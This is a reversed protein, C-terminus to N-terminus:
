TRWAAMVRREASPRPEHLAYWEGAGHMLDLEIQQRLSPVGKVTAFWGDKSDVLDGDVLHHDDGIADPDWKDGHLLHHTPFAAVREGILTELVRDVFDAPLATWGQPTQLELTFADDSSMVRLRESILAPGDHSCVHSEIMGCVSAPAYPSPIPFNGNSALLLDWRRGTTTKFRRASPRLEGVGTELCAIEQDANKREGARDVPEVLLGVDVCAEEARKGIDDYALRRIRVLASYAGRADASQRRYVDRLAQRRAPLDSLM